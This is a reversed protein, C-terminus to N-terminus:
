SVPPLGSALRYMIEGNPLQEDVFAAV